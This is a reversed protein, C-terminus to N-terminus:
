GLWSLHGARVRQGDLHGHGFGDRDVAEMMEGPAAAIRFLGTSKVLIDEPQRERVDNAGVM